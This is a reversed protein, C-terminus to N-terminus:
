AFVRELRNMVEVITSKPAATNLRIFGAESSSFMEGSELVLHADTACKNLLEKDTLKYDSFDLWAFYTGKSITYKVRPLKEDIFSKMYRMNENIVNNLEDLWDGCETYAAIEGVITFPSIPTFGVYSKFQNRLAENKIIITTSMLAPVNFAKNISSFTVLLENNEVTEASTFRVDERVIDMHIEDAVFIINYKATINMLRQVDEKSWVTGMPNYPNCLIFMKANEKQCLAEFNEFDISYTNQADKILHNALFERRNSRTINEFPGYGPLQVIIGDGEVTLARVVNRIAAMTGHSHILWEKKLNMHHRKQHWDIIAQYYEPTAGSYALVQTKARTAIADAIQPACEFDMDAIWMSITDEYYPLDYMERVMEKSVKFTNLGERNASTMFNYNM